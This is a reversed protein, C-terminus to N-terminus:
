EQDLSYKDPPNDEPDENDDGSDDNDEDTSFVPEPRDSSPQRNNLEVLPEQSALVPKMETTRSPENSDTVMKTESTAKASPVFQLVVPAMAKVPKISMTWQFITSWKQHLFQNYQGLINVVYGNLAHVDEIKPIKLSSIVFVQANKIPQLRNHLTEPWSDLPLGVCEMAHKAKQTMHRATAIAKREFTSDSHLRAETDTVESAVEDETKNVESWIYLAKDKANNMTGRSYEILDVTFHLQSITEQSRLQVTRLQTAIRSCMRRQVKSGLNRAKKMVVTREKYLEDNGAGDHSKEEGEPLYTDVYHDAADLTWDLGTVVQRCVPMEMIHEMRKMGVDTVSNLTSMGYAKAGNIKGTTYSKVGAVKDVGYQKVANVREVIPKIASDCFHKTEKLVEDTPKTIIPYDHELKELQQCAVANLAGIPKDFKAVVPRARDVVVNVGGEATELTFRFLRNHQKVGSYLSTLQGFASSVVPLEYVRNVFWDEDLAQREQLHQRFM